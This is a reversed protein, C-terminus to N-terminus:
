GGVSWPWAAWASTSVENSRASEATRTLFRREKTILMANGSRRSMVVLEDLAGATEAPREEYDAQASSVPEGRSRDEAIRQGHGPVTFFAHELAQPHGRRRCPRDHAPEGHLDDGVQDNGEDDENDAANEM